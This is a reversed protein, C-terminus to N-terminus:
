YRAPQPLPRVSCSRSSDSVGSRELPAEPTSPALSPAHIDIPVGDGAEGAAQVGENERYALESPLRYVTDTRKM